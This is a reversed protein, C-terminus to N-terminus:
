PILCEFSSACCCVLVAMPVALKALVLAVNVFANLLLAGDVSASVLM